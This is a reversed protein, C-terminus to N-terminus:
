SALASISIQGSSRSWNAAAGTGVDLLVLAYLRTSSTREFLKIVSGMEVIEPAKKTLKPLEIDDLPNRLILEWKVAKEFVGHM